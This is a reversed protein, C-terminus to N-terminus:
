HVAIAARHVVGTDLLAEDGETEDVAVTAYVPVDDPFLLVSWYPVESMAESVGILTM